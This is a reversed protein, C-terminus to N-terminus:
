RWRQIYGLEAASGPDFERTSEATAAALKSVLTKLERAVSALKEVDGGLRIEDIQRVAYDRLWTIERSALSMRADLSLNWASRLREVRALHIESLLLHFWVRQYCAMWQMPGASPTIISRARPVIHGHFHVSRTDSLSMSGTFRGPGAGVGAGSLDAACFAVGGDVLPAKFLLYDAVSALSVYEFTGDLRVGDPVLTATVEPPREAARESGANGVIWENQHISKLLAARKFVALGLWPLPVHQMACFPYLHMVLGIALPLCDAAVSGATSAAAAFTDSPRCAVPHLDMSARVHEFRAAFGERPAPPMLLGADPKIQNLAESHV